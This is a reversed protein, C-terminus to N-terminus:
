ICVDSFRNTWYIRFIKFLAECQFKGSSVSGDVIALLSSFVLMLVLVLFRSKRMETAISMVQM